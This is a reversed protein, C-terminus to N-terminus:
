IKGIVLWVKSVFVDVIEIIFINRGDKNIVLVVIFVLNIMLIIFM